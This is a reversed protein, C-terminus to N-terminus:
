TLDDFVHIEVPRGAQKASEILDQKDSLDARRGKSALVLPSKPQSRDDDLVVLEGPEMELLAGPPILEPESPAIEELIEFRAPASVEPSGPFHYLLRIQQNTAM